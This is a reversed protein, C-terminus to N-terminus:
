LYYKKLFKSNIPIMIMRGNSDALHYVGNLYVTEVVFPRECKPQFKDKTKHMMIM